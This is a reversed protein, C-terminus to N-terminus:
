QLPMPPQTIEHYRGGWWVEGLKRVAGARGQRTQLPDIGSHGFDLKLSSGPIYPLRTGDGRAPGARVMLDDIMRAFGMGTGIHMATLVHIRYTLDIRTMRQEMM